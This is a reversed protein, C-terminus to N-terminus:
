AISQSQQGSDSMGSVSSGLSEEVQSPYPGVPHTRNSWVVLGVRSPGAGIRGGGAGAGLMDDEVCVGAM